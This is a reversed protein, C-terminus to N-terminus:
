AAVRYFCCPTHLMENMRVWYLAQEDTAIKQMLRDLKVQNRDIRALDKDVNARDNAISVDLLLADSRLTKLRCSLVVEDISM